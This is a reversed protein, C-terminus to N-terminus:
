VIGFSGGKFYVSLDHDAFALLLLLFLLHFMKTSLSTKGLGGFTQFFNVLVLLCSTRASHQSPQHAYTMLSSVDMAFIMKWDYIMLIYKQCSSSERWRGGERERERSVSKTKYIATM